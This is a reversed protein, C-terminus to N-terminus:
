TELQPNKRLYPKIIDIQRTLSFNIQDLAFNFGNVDDKVTPDNKAHLIFELNKKALKRCEQLQWKPLIMRDELKNILDILRKQVKLSNDLLIDVDGFLEQGAVQDKQQFDQKIRLYNAAFNYGLLALLAALAGWKKWDEAIMQKEIIQMLDKIHEKHDLTNM